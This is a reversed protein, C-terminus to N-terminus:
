THKETDASAASAAEAEKAEKDKKRQLKEEREKRWKPGWRRVALIMPVSVVFSLASLLTYTAGANLRTLM